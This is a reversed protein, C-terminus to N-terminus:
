ITLHDFFHCDTSLLFEVPEEDNAIRRRKFESVVQSVTVRSRQGTISRDPGSVNDFTIPQGEPGRFVGETYINEMLRFHTNVKGFHTSEALLRMDLGDAHLQRVEHRLGQVWRAQDSLGALSQNWQANFYVQEERFQKIVGELVVKQRALMSGLDESRALAYDGMPWPM